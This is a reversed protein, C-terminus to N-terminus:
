AIITTRVDGTSIAVGVTDDRHETRVVGGSAIDVLTTVLTRASEGYVELGPMSIDKLEDVEALVVALFLNTSTVQEVSEPNGVEQLACKVREPM